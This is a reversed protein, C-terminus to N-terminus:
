YFQHIGFFDKDPSINLSDVDTILEYPTTGKETSLYDLVWKKDTKDLFLFKKSFTKDIFLYKECDNYM